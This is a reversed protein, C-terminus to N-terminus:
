LFCWRYKKEKNPGVAIEGNSKCSKSITINSVSYARAAENVSDFIEGTDLNKVKKAGPKQKQRSPINIDKIDYCWHLSEGTVPHKGASSKEGRIQSSINSASTKKMGSWVAAEVLSNFIQGTEKCIVKKGPSHSEKSPKTKGGPRLNYGKKPNLADFAKIWFKERKDAQESTLGEELILHDFNEWGYEQIANYFHPSSKYGYGGKFRRKVNDASTQGIYVKGNIKNKHIYIKYSM